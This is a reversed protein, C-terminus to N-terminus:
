YQNLITLALEATPKFEFLSWYYKYPKIYLGCNLLHSLMKYIILKNNITPFAVLIEKEPMWLLILDHVCNYFKIYIYKIESNKNFEDFVIESVIM